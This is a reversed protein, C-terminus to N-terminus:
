AKVKNLLDRLTPAPAKEQALAVAATAVLSTLPALTRM